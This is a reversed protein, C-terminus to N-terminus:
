IENPNKLPVAVFPTWKKAVLPIRVKVGPPVLSCNKYTLVAELRVELRVMLTVMEFEVPIELMSGLWVLPTPVITSVM